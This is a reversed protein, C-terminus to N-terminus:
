DPFSLRIGEALSYPPVWGLSRKAHSCDVTLPAALKGAARGQGVLTMVAKFLVAPLPLLICRLEQAKAIRAVFDRTSVDDDDSVVFVQGAANPHEICRLIFSVLNGVFLFSRQNNLGGLPLPIRKQVLSALRSFNGPAEPGYVMPPRIIVLECESKKFLEILKKEALVKSGSYADSSAYSSLENYPQVSGEGHVGISSLYVFRSVGSRIAAEAYGMPLDCNVSVFDNLRTDEPTNLHALGACFVIVNVDKAIFVDDIRKQRYVPELREDISGFGRFCVSTRSNGVVRGGESALAEFVQNGIFGSFGVVQVANAM